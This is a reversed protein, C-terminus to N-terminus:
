LRPRVSRNGISSLPACAMEHCHRGSVTSGRPGFSFHAHWLSDVLASFIHGVHSDGSTCSTGRSARSTVKTDGRIKVIRNLVQPGALLAPLREPEHIALLAHDDLLAV